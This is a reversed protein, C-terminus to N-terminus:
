RTSVGIRGNRADHHVRLPREHGTLEDLEAVDVLDRPRRRALKMARLDDLSCCPMPAAALDVADARAKLKAYAPASFLDDLV